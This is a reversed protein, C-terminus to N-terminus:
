HEFFKLNLVCSYRYQNNSFIRIEMIPRETCFNPLRANAAAQLFNCHIRFLMRCKKYGMVKQASNHNLVNVSMNHAQM